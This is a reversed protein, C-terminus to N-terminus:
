RKQYSKTSLQNKEINSHSSWSTEKSWKSPFSKGVKCDSTTYSKTVSTHKRYAAFNQTRNVYVTQWHRRKILFDLGNINLSVLSFHNNSGRIKITLPPIINTHNDQKPNTSHNSEWKKRPYLKGGLILTKWKNNKIPSSTHFSLNLNPKTMSYRPKEM